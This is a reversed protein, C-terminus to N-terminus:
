RQEEDAFGGHARLFYHDTTAAELAVGDVAVADELEDPHLYHKVIEFERGDALIRRERGGDDTRQIRGYGARMATEPHANDIMIVRGGPRLSRRVLMWHERRRDVPVHSFWFSFFVTDFAGPPDFDFLDTRVLQVSAAPGLKERNITLTEESGDVAVIEDALPVLERTWNGTGAALELVRGLPALGRLWSRLRDIESEWVALHGEGLDYRGRRLWWDDYEPARAEYYAQQESLIGTDDV